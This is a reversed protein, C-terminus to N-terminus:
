GISLECHNLSSILMSSKCADHVAQANMIHLPTRKHGNHMIFHQIQFLSEVKRRKNDSVSGNERYFNADFNYLTGYFQLLPDPIKMDEWASKLDNSDCFKDNLNFDYELLSNRITQACIKIPDNSRINEAMACHLTENNSFVMMSKNAATSYSFSISNGFHNQLRKRIDQNNTEISSDLEKIRNCITTIDYGKGGNFGEQLEAFLQNWANSQNDNSMNDTKEYANIYERICSKHCYLDAGFVRQVDQLDSM